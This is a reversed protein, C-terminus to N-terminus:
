IFWKCIDEEMWYAAKENQQYNGKSTNFSKHKIYDCKNVEKTHPSMGWFISSFGINFLMNGTNEELFKITGPKM